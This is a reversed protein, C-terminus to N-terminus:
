GIKVKSKSLFSYDPLYLNKPAPGSRIRGSTDYVSGHCPCFWGHYKGGGFTPVCGLHTCVGIVILWEAMGPKHRDEDRAPDRLDASDGAVAEAIEQPTRHRIFVPKGRWKVVIQQGLPTKGYDVEISALALTDASPNMEDIFPWAIGGVLGVAMAGAMIHIFDRKTPEAGAAAAIAGESM